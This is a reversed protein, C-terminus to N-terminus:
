CWNILTQEITEVDARNCFALVLLDGDQVTLLGICSVHTPCLRWIPNGNRRTTFSQLFGTASGDINWFDPATAIKKGLHKLYVYTRAAEKQVWYSEDEALRYLDREAEDSVLIQM